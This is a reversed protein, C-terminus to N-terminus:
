QQITVIFESNEFHKPDRNVAHTSIFIVDGAKLTEDGIQTDKKTVRFIFTVAPDLRNLEDLAQDLLTTDHCLQEKAPQDHLLTYLINCIQDTTTVQGAVLMM